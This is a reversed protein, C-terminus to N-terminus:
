ESMDGVIIRGAATIAFQYHERTGRSETWGRREFTRLMSADGSGQVEISAYGLHDTFGESGFRPVWFRRGEVTNAAILRLLLRARPSLKEAESKRSRPM